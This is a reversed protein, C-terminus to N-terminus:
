WASEGSSKYIKIHKKVTPAYIHIRVWAKESHINLM